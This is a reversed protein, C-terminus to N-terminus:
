QSPQRPLGTLPSKISNPDDDLSETSTVEASFKGRALTIGVSDGLNLEAPDTVTKSNSRVIAYGRLLTKQPSLTELRLALM